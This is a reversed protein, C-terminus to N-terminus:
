VRRFLPIAVKVRESGPATNINLEFSLSSDQIENQLVASSLVAWCSENSHVCVLTKDVSKFTVAM